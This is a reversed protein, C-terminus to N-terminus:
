QYSKRGHTYCVGSMKGGDFCDNKGTANTMANPINKKASGQEGSKMDAAPNGAMKVNNGYGKPQNKDLNAM